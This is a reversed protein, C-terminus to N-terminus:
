FEKEFLFVKYPFNTQFYNHAIEQLEKTEVCPNNSISINAYGDKKLFEKLGKPIPPQMLNNHIVLSSLKSCNSLRIPVDIM